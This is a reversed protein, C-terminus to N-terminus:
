RGPLLRELPIPAVEAMGPPATEPAAYAAAPQPAVYQPTATQM